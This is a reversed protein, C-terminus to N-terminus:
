DLKCEGNEFLILCAYQTYAGFTRATQEEAGSVALRLPEKVEFM